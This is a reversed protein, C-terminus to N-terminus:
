GQQEAALHALVRSWDEANFTYTLPAGDILIPEDDLAFVPTDQGEMRTFSLTKGNVVFSPTGTIGDDSSRKNNNTIEDLIEQNTLCAEFEAESFGVSRAITSLQQRMAGRQGAEFIARQQDFLIDVMDFYKDEGACHALMFGAAAVQPQGTLMERFVFRVNGAEIQEEVGPMADEHFTACHGCAVSAYEVLTLPANPNGKAFDGEREYASHGGQGSNANDGCAVLGLSVVVSASVALVSKMLAM